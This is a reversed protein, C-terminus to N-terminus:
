APELAFASICGVTTWLLLTISFEQSEGYSLLFFVVLLFFSQPCPSLLLACTVELYTGLGILLDVLSM